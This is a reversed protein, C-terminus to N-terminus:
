RRLTSIYIDSGPGNMEGFASHEANKQRILGNKTRGTKLKFTEYGLLDFVQKCRM